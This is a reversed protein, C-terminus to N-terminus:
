TKSYIYSDNVLKIYTQSRGYLDESSKQVYTCVRIQAGVRLQTDLLRAAENQGGGGRCAIKRKSLNKQGNEATKKEHLLHFFESRGQQNIGDQENVLYDLTHGIKEVNNAQLDSGASSSFLQNETLLM